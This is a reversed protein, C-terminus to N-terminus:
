VAGVTIKRGWEVVPPFSCHSVPPYGCPMRKASYSRPLREAPQKVVSQSQCRMDWIEVPENVWLTVFGAQFVFGLQYMQGFGSVPRDIWVLHANIAFAGETGLRDFNRSAM